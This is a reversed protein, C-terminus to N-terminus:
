TTTPKPPTWPNGALTDRLARMTRLGNKRVTSIYGRLALFTQAGTLTRFGGSVKTRTKTMPIAQEATNNSFGVTFDTAFRLLEDRRQHLRLAMNRAPTQKGPRPPHLALAREVVRDYRWHLDDLKFDPLRHHGQERWHGVWRHADGLLNVLDAAWGDERATADVEGTGTAERVVHANCLAHACAFGNYASYADHM